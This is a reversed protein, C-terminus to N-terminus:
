TVVSLLVAKRGTGFLQAGFVAFLIQMISDGPQSLRSDHHQQLCGRRALRVGERGYGEFRLFLTQSSTQLSTKKPRSMIIIMM